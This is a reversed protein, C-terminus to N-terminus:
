YYRQVYTNIYPSTVDIIVIRDGPTYHPPSAPSHRGRCKKPSFNTCFNTWQQLQM